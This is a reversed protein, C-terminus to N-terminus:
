NLKGRKMESMETEVQKSARPSYKRTGSKKAAAKKTAM